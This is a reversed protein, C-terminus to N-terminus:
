RLGAIRQMIYITEALGVKDDGNIDVGSAVYDSRIFGTTDMEILAKLAIICDTLDINGDGDIDGNDTGTGQTFVTSKPVLAQPHYEISFQIHELIQM